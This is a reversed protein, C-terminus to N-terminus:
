DTPRAIIFRIETRIVYDGAPTRAAEFREKGASIAEARREEPVSELAHRAGHSWLWSVWHDPDTFRSEYTVEDIDPTAYGHGTLLHTISDPSGFPGQRESRPPLGDGPVHSGIAKMAADFNEDQAGFTTFGLRGGPALLGAYRRLAGGADPLFFLVLGALVADFSGAAFDPREADGVFVTVADLGRAKADSQTLEAMRPALDIGVARGTPGVAAAAPFLVAGRGCGVDLVREGTQLAARAVLDRGAPVFFDVGIQEYMDAGRDFVGAIGRKIVQPDPPTSVDRDEDVL